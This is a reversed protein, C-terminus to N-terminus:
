IISESTNLPSCYIDHTDLWTVKVNRCLYWLGATFYEDTRNHASTLKWHNTAYGTTCLAVVCGLLVMGLMYFPTRIVSDRVRLFFLRNTVGTESEKTYKIKQSM